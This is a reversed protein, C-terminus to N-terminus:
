EDEDEAEGSKSFICKCAECCKTVTKNVEGTAKDTEEETECDEHHAILPMYENEKFAEADRLCKLYTLAPDGPLGTAALVEVTDEAKRYADKEVRVKLDDLAKKAEKTLKGELKGKDADREKANAVLYAAFPSSLHVGYFVKPVLDGEKLECARGLRKYFQDLEYPEWAGIAVARHVNKAFDNTGSLAQRKDIIAITTGDQDAAAAFFAKLGAKQDAVDRKLWEHPM